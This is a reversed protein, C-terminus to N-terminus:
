QFDAIPLPFSQGTALHVFAGARLGPFHTRPRVTAGSQIRRLRLAVGSQIRLATMSLFFGRTCDFGLATAAESQRAGGCLM